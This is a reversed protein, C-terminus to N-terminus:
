DSDGAHSMTGSCKGVQPSISKPSRMPSKVGVSMAPSTLPSWGALCTLWASGIQVVFPTSPSTDM